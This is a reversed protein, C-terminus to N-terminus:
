GLGSSLYGSTAGRGNVRQAAQQALQNEQENGLGTFSVRGDRASVTAGIRALRRDRAFRMAVSDALMTDELTAGGSQLGGHEQRIFAEHRPADYVTVRDTYYPTQALAAAPSALAAAAIAIAKLRKM